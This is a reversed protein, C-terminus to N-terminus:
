IPKLTRMIIISIGIIIIFYVGINRRQQKNIRIKQPEIFKCTIQNNTIKNEWKNRKRSQRKEKEKRKERKKTEQDLRMNKWKKRM